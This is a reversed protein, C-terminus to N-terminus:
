TRNPLRPPQRMGAMALCGLFFTTFNVSVVGFILIPCLIVKVLVTQGLRIAAWIGCYLACLPLIIFFCAFTLYSDSMLPYTGLINMQSLAVAGPLFLLIWFAWWGIHVAPRHPTDPLEDM